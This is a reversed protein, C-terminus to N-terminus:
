RHRLRRDGHCRQQQLEVPRDHEHRRKWRRYYTSGSTPQAFAFTDDHESGIVGEISDLTDIGEDGVNQALGDLTVDVSVPGTATSYDAVDHGQGGSLLDDGAGGALIDDDAEGFLQDDGESGFLSDDGLDGFLQDDGALGDLVDDAADGTGIDDGATADPIAESTDADVWTASLLIRPELTETEFRLKNEGGQPVAPESKQNPDQETPTSVTM